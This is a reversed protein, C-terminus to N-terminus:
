WGFQEFFFDELWEFGKVCSYAVTKATISPNAVSVHILAQVLRRKETIWLKRIIGDVSKM